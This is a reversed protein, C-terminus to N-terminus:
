QEQTQRLPGVPLGNIPDNLATMNAMSSTNFFKDDMASAIMQVLVAGIIQGLAGGDGQQQRNEREDYVMHKQWLTNGTAADVLELNADIYAYSDILAFKQGFYDIDTYLIADPAFQANLKDLPIQNMEQPLTVGNAKIYSDVVGVPYVYYGREGLPKSITSLFTYTGEIEPSNNQPPLVLIRVPNVQELAEFRMPEACAVLTIALVALACASRSLKNLRGM